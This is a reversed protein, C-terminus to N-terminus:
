LVTKSPLVISQQTSKIVWKSLVYSISLISVIFLLSVKGVVLFYSSLANFEKYVAVSIIVGFLLTSLINFSKEVSKSFIPYRKHILMGIAVPLITLMLIQGMTKLIPLDFEAGQGMYYASGWNVVFPITFVTIVSAVATLTISLAVDAKALHCFLNTTAGGPMAAILVFGMALEPELAFFRLVFLIFSPVLILKLFLGLAISKPKTLVRKFDAISLTLGMGMMIVFLASSFLVQTIFNTEL